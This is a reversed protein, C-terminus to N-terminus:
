LTEPNSVQELAFDLSNIRIVVQLLEINRLYIEVTGGFATEERPKKPFRKDLKVGRGPPVPKDLTPLHGLSQEVAFVYGELTEAIGQAFCHFQNVCLQCFILPM